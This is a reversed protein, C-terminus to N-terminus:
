KPERPSTDCTECNDCERDCSGCQNCDILKQVSDVQKPEFSKRTLEELVNLQQSELNM